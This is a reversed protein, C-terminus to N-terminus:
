PAPRKVAFIDRDGEEFLEQMTVSEPKSDANKKEKTERAEKAAMGGWKKREAESLQEWKGDAHATLESKKM